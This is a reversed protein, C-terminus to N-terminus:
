SVWVSLGWRLLAIDLLLASVVVVPIDVWRRRGVWALAMFAPFCALLYRPVSFLPVVGSVPNSLPLAIVVAAYVGYPAGFRRWAVITLVVFLFVLLFQAVNFSADLGAMTPRDILEHGTVLRGASLAAAYAGKAFGGLPGFPNLERNWGTTSSSTATVFEFPNGFEVLLYLPWLLFLTLGPALRGLAGRRDSSRWAFLVLAPVLAVGALRCLMALGAVVGAWGFRGREALLFAGVALALFLSESYAAALFVSTPFIALYVITRLAGRRGLRRWALRHLLVFMVACAALSVLLAALGYHGGLVRGIIAVIAPFLPFFAPSDPNSYGDHAIRVYWIGDWQAWLDVGWGLDHGFNVVAPEISAYVVLALAAIGARSIAFVLLPPRLSPDGTV